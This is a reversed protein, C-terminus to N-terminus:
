MKMNRKLIKTQININNIKAMKKQKNNRIARIINTNIDRFKIGLRYIEIEKEEVIIRRKGKKKWYEYIGKNRKEDRMKKKSIKKFKGNM